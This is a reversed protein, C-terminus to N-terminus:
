TGVTKVLTKGLEKTVGSADAHGLERGGSAALIRNYLKRLNLCMDGHDKRRPQELLDEISHAGLGLTDSVYHVVSDKFEQYPARSTVTMFFRNDNPVLHFVVLKNNSDV